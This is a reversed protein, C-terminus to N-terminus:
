SPIMKYKLLHLAIFSFTTSHLIVVLSFFHSHFSILISSSFSFVAEVQVEKMGDSHHTYTAPSVRLPVLSFIFPSSLHMCPSSSRSSQMRLGADRMRECGQTVCACTGRSQQMIHYQTSYMLMNNFPYRSSSTRKREESLYALGEGRSRRRGEEYEWVVTRVKRLSVNTGRKGERIHIIWM